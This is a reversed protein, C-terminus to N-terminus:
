PNGRRPPDRCAPGLVLGRGHDLSELVGRVDMGNITGRVHHGVKTDWAVDPDFPVPVPVRRRVTVLTSAYRQQTM